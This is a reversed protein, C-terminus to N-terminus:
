YKSVKLVGTTDYFFYTHDTEDEPMSRNSSDIVEILKKESDYKYRVYSDITKRMRSARDYSASYNAIKVKHGNTDLEIVKALDKTSNEYVYITKVKLAQYIRDPQFTNEDQAQAFHPLAILVFALVRYRLSTSAIKTTRSM